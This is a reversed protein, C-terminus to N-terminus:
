FFSAADGALPPGTLTTLYETLAFHEAQALAEKSFTGTGELEYGGSLAIAVCRRARVQDSGFHLREEVMPSVM